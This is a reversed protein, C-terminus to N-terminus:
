DEHSPHYIYQRVCYQTSQWASCLYYLEGRRKGGAVWIGADDDDQKRSVYGREYKQDRPQYGLKRAQKWNKPKTTMDKDGSQREQEISVLYCMYQM